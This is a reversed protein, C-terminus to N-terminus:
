AAVATIRLVDQVELEFTTSSSSLMDIWDSITTKDTSPRVGAVTEGRLAWITSELNLEFVGWVVGFAGLRQQVEPAFGWDRLRDLVKLSQERHKPVKM